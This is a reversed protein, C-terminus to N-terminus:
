MTALLQEAKKRVYASNMGPLGNFQAAQKAFARAETMRGNGRCALALRYLITPDQQNGQQLEEVATGYDKQALAIMGSLEHVLRAQNRNKKAEVGKRFARNHAEADKLDGRVVAVRGANYHHTLAANEKVEKALGSGEILALSKEFHALAEDPKGIQLFINGM